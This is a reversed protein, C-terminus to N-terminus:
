KLDYLDNQLVLFLFERQIGVGHNEEELIKTSEESLSIPHFLPCASNNSFLREFGSQFSVPYM